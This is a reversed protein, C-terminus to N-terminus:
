EGHYIAPMNKIWQIMIWIILSPFSAVLSLSYPINTFTPYWDNSMYEVMYYYDDIWVCIYARNSVVWKCSGGFRLDEYICERM